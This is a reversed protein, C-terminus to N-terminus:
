GSLDVDDVAEPTANNGSLEYEVNLLELDGTAPLPVKAAARTYVYQWTVRAGGVVNRNDRDFDTEISLQVGNEPCEAAAAEGTLADRLLPDSDLLAEVQEILLDLTQHAPVLAPPAGLQRSEVFLEVHVSVRAKFVRPAQRFLEIDDRGTFVVIAPMVDPWATTPRSNFVNAGAITANKLRAIVRERILQRPHM